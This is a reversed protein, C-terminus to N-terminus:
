NFEQINKGHRMDLSKSAERIKRLAFLAYTEAATITNGSDVKMAMEEFRPTATIKVTGDLENDEINIVIRAMKSRWEKYYNTVKACEALFEDMPMDSKMRNHRPCCAVVNGLIYGENSDLRDLGNPGPAGCYFCEESCEQIFLERSLEFKFGRKKAQNKYRSFKMVWYGKSSKPYQQQYKRQYEAPDNKYRGDAARMRKVMPM